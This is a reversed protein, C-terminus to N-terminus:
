VVITVLLKIKSLNIKNNKIFDKCNKVIIIQSRLSSLCGDGVNFSKYFLKIVFLSYYM